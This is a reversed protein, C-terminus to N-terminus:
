DLRFGFSIRPANPAYVCHWYYDSDTIEFLRLTWGKEDWDTVITKTPDDSKIYKFYSGQEMPSYTLYLRYCPTNSNTHWGMFGGKPYLFNGSPQRFKLGTVDEIFNILLKTVEFPPYSLEDLKSAVNVQLNYQNWRVANLDHNLIFEDTIGPINVDLPDHSINVVNSSQPTTYSYLTPNALVTDVYETLLKNLEDSLELKKIM